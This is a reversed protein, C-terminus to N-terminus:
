RRDPDLLRALYGTAELTEPTGVQSVRGEELVVIRDGLAVADTPDHTVVLRVGGHSGLHEALVSRMEDRMGVDLASLPEDLLLVDPDAALARVLAVRQAQGGSLEAPPADFRDVLGVRDLWERAIEAAAARRTGRARLGFAVNDGVSLHPFLVGEQFVYGLSRQEPPLWRGAGPHDWVEDGVRLMGADLPVLGAIIRLLTTKGAGNPGVVALTTGAPVALDVDLDLLGMRRRGAIQLDAGNGPASPGTVM